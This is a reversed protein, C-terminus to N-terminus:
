SRPRAYEPGKIDALATITVKTRETVTAKGGVNAVRDILGGRFRVAEAMTDPDGIAEIVFPRKLESGGVVIVRDDDLFYTQAVVRATGNIAIAEAGADRLEQVADLLQNASVAEDPDEITVAVGPGTAGASGALIALQESRKRAQKEADESRQSSSLLDDRTATLDDIQTALRENAADISKLLEVLEVGRVSTFDTADDQAIQTTMGFALAGILLSVLVHMGTPRSWRRFRSMQQDLM